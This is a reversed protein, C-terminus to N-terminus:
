YRDIVGVTNFLQGVSDLAMALEDCISNAIARERLTVTFM